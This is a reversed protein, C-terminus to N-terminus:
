DGETPLTTPDFVAINGAFRAPFEGARPLAVIGNEALDVVEVIGDLTLENMSTHTGYEGCRAVGVAASPRLRDRATSRRSHALRLM